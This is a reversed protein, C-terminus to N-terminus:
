SGRREPPLGRSTLWGTVYDVWAAMSRHVQFLHGSNAIMHMTVDCGCNDRYYRYDGRQAAPPATTDHDGSSLLVDTGPGIQAINRRNEEATQGLSAIDGYPSILFGRPDCAIDVAYRVQGPAFVNFQECDQRTYFLDFYDPQASNPTFRGGEAPGVDDEGEEPSFSGNIATSVMAEVDHYQGPYGAVILGGLSHGVIVVRNSRLDGKTRPGSCGKARTTEYGAGRVDDVIQHLMFRHGPLSTRLGGAPRDYTSRAYGLRDYAYVVYGAAALARAVSWSPSFDWNEVSSAAGHVLVIAPTQRSVPGDTFRKGYLVSPQPDNQNNVTFCVTEAKLQRDFQMRQAGAAPALAALLIIALLTGPAVISRM